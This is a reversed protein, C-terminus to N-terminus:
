GLLWQLLLPQLCQLFIFPNTCQSQTIIQLPVRYSGSTSRYPSIKLTKVICIKHQTQGAITIGADVCCHPLPHLIQGPSSCNIFSLDSGPVSLLRGLQSWKDTCEHQVYFCEEPCISVPATLTGNFSCPPYYYLCLVRRILDQCRNPTTDFVVSIVANLKSTLQSQTSGRASNIYINVREGIEGDCLTSGGEYAQCVGGFSIWFSTISIHTKWVAQCLGAISVITFVYRYSIATIQFTSNTSESCREVPDLLVSLYM